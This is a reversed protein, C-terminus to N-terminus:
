KAEIGGTTATDSVEGIQGSGAWQTELARLSAIQEDHIPDDCRNRLEEALEIALKLLARADEEWRATPLDVRQQSGSRPEGSASESARIEDSM